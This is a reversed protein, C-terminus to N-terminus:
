KLRLYVKMQFDKLSTEIRMAPAEKAGAPPTVAVAMSMDMAATVTTGVMCGREYDFLIEGNVSQDMGSITMSTKGGGPIDIDMPSGLPFSTKGSMLIRAVSSGAPAHLSAVKYDVSMSIPIASAEKTLSPLKVETKCQWTSGEGVAEASLEPGAQRVMDDLNISGMGVQALMGALKELGGVELTQGLPSMKMSIGDTLLPKIEPPFPIAQSKGGMTMIGKALDMSMRIRMGSVDVVMDMPGIKVVVTGNGESDVAKTAMDITGQVAVAMKMKQDGAKQDGTPAGTMHIVVDGGGRAVMSYTRTEGPVFKYRLLVSEQAWAASMALALLM